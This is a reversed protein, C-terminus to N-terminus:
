GAGHPKIHIWVITFTAIIYRHTHSLFLFSTRVGARERGTYQTSHMCLSPSGDRMLCSDTDTYTHSLSFSSLTPTAAEQERGVTGVEHISHICLSPHYLARIGNQFRTFDRRLFQLLDVCCFVKLTQRHTNSNITVHPSSTIPQRM